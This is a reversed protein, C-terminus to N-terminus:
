VHCTFVCVCVSKFMQKQEAQNKRVKMSVLCSLLIDDGQCREKKRDKQRGENEREMERQGRKQRGREMFREERGSRKERKNEKQGKEERM